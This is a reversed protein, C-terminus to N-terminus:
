ASHIGEYLELLRDATAPWSFRMSIVEARRGMSAALDPDTLITRIAKAYDGPDHGAVLLGSGGNDVAYPLGGVDAAVVPTGCAQAEAAVLGFTESRSPVIVIDAAQYFTPLERHPQADYFSVRDGINQEDVIQHLRSLEAPGDPGSPGGVVVLHPVRGLDDLHGIAGVAVDAAKLPQIRGVFLVIPIGTQWGLTKRAQNRDGPQFVDHDIGPPSTCLREPNAGYHDVLDDFEHPTSAIVCDSLAIVEEETYTRLASSPAEDIRRTLDKIRGLTHFSNALPVGLTEKLIAGAWGSLWYHSHIVYPHIAHSQIYDLVKETFALVLDPMATMPVYTEPGAAVNVVRYRDNVEIIDPDQPDSSRTFVTVNVNRQSMTQALEDIYVNMGGAHGSGPQLLPSTHMSLYVVDRVADSKTTDRTM